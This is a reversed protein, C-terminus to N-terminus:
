IERRLNPAFNHCVFSVKSTGKVINQHGEWTKTAKITGCKRYKQIIDILTSMPMHSFFQCNKKPLRCTFNLIVLGIEELTTTEGLM